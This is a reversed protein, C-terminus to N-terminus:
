GNLLAGPFVKKTLHVARLSEKDKGRLAPIEWAMYIPEKVGRSVLAEMEEQGAVLWIEENFLNSFIKIPAMKVKKAERGIQTFPLAGQTEGESPIPGQEKLALGRLADFAKRALPRM